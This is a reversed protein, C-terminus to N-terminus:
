PVQTWHLLAPARARRVHARSCHNQRAQAATNEKARGDAEECGQKCRGTARITARVSAHPSATLPSSLTTTPGLAAAGAGGHTIWLSATALLLGAATIAFKQRADRLERTELLTGLTDM